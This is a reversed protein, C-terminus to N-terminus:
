NECTLYRQDLHPLNRHSSNGFLGSLTSRQRDLSTYAPALAAAWMSLLSRAYLKGYAQLLTDKCQKRKDEGPWLEEGTTKDESVKRKEASKDKREKSNAVTGM